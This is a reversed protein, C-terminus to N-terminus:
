VAHYNASLYDDLKNGKFIPVAPFLKRWQERCRAVAADFQKGNISERHEWTLAIFTDKESFRGFVRIGPVPDLCRIDWIEDRLPDVRALFAKKSKKYPDEAVSIRRGAVFTDLWARMQALRQGNRRASWPPHVVSNIERSVFMTRLM